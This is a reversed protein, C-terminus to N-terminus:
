ERNLWELLPSIDYVANLSPECGASINALRVGNSTTYLAVLGLAKTAFLANGIYDTDFYPFLPLHRIHSVAKLETGEANTVYTFRPDNPMNQMVLGNVLAFEPQETYSTAQTEIRRLFKLKGLNMDFEFIRMERKDLTSSYKNLFSYTLAVIIRNKNTVSVQVINGFEKFSSKIDYNLSWLRGDSLKIDLVTNGNVKDRIAQAYACFDQLNCSKSKSAYDSYDAGEHAEAWNYGNAKSCNADESMIEKLELPNKLADQCISTLANKERLANLVLTETLFLECLPKHEKTATMLENYSYKDLKILSTVIGACAGIRISPLLSFISEAEDTSGNKRYFKEEAKETSAINMLSTFANIARVDSCGMVLESLYAKDNISFLRTELLEKASNFAHTQFALDLLNKGDFKTKIDVNSLDAVKGISFVSNSTRAELEFVNFGLRDKEFLPLRNVDNKKSFSSLVNEPAYVFSHIIPAGARTGVISLDFKSSDLALLGAVTDWDRRYATCTLATEGKQMSNVDIGPLRAYVLALKSNGSCAAEVFDAEDVGAFATMSLIMLTGTILFNM